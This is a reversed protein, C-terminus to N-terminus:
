PHPVEKNKATFVRLALPEMDRVIFGSNRFQQTEDATIPTRTDGDVWFYTPDGDAVPNLIFRMSEEQPTPPEAHPAPEDYDSYWPRGAGIVFSTARHKHFVGGGNDQSGKSDASTNGEIAAQHHEYPRAIAIGTHDPVNHNSGNRGTLHYFVIDGPEIDAPEIWRGAAQWAAKNARTSATLAGKPVKARARILIAATFVACWYTGNALHAEAAFKTRNSGAPQEVYGVESGADALVDAITTMLEVDM